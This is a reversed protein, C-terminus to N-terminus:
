QVSCRSPEVADEGLIIKEHKSSFFGQGLRKKAVPPQSKLLDVVAQNGMIWAVDAPLLAIKSEDCGQTILQEIKSILRSHIEPNYSEFYTM